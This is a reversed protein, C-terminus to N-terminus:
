SREERLKLLLVTIATAILGSAVSGVILWLYGADVDSMSLGFLNIFREIIAGTFLAPLLGLDILGSVLESGPFGECTLTDIIGESRPWCPAEGPTADGFFFWAFSFPMVFIALYAGYIWLILREGTM